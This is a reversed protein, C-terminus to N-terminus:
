LKLRYSDGFEANDGAMETKFAFTHLPFLSRYNNFHCFPRCICLISPLSPAAYKDVCGVTSNNCIIVSRKHFKQNANVPQM